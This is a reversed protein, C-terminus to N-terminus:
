SRKLRKWFFYTVGLLVLLGILAIMWSFDPSPSASPEPTPSASLPTTPTLTPLVTPTVRACAADQVIFRNEAGPNVRITASASMGNTKLWTLTYDGTFGRWSLTGSSDTKARGSTTWSHILDRITHIIPRPNTGEILGMGYMNDDPTTEGSAVWMLGSVYPKSFAITFTYRAWEAQTEESHSEHWADRYWPKNELYKKPLDDIAGYSLESIFLNKGYKSYYELTDNFISVDIPPSILGNYFELGINDFPVNHELMAQIIEESSPYTENNPNPAWFEETLYLGYFNIYTPVGPAGEQAGQVSAAAIKVLDETTLPMFGFANQPENFANYISMQVRYQKTFNYSFEYALNALEEASMEQAFTPMWGPTIWVGTHMAIKMGARTIPTFISRRYDYEGPAVLVENWWAQHAASNFGAEALIKAQEYGDPWGAAFIFDHSTQQYRVELEPLAAGSCDTVQVTVDTKRYKEINQRAVQLVAEERARLVRTLVTYSSPICLSINGKPCETKAQELAQSAENNWQGIEETFTYGGAQYNALREQFLRYETRAAEYLVNIPKVDGRPVTYGQGDNDLHIFTDGVEPLPWHVWFEVAMDAPILMVPHNKNSGEQWGWFFPGQHYLYQLTHTSPSVGLPQVRIRWNSYKDQLFVYKGERTYTQLWIAGGPHLTLNVEIQESTPIVYKYQDLVNAAFWARGIQVRGMPEIQLIYGDRKPVQVRYFGAATSETRSILNWHNDYINIFAHVPKGETDSLTGYITIRATQVEASPINSWLPLTAFIWLLFFRLTNM